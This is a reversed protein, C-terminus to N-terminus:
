TPRVGHTSTLSARMNDQSHKPLVAGVFWPMNIGGIRRSWITWIFVLFSALRTNAVRVGLCLLCLPRWCRWLPWACGRTCHKTRLRAKAGYVLGVVIPTDVSLELFAIWDASTGREAASGCCVAVYLTLVETPIYGFAPALSILRLRLEELRQALTSRDADAVHRPKAIEQLGEPVKDLPFFILVVVACCKRLM